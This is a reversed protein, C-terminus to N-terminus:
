SQCVERRTQLRVSYPGRKLLIKDEEWFTRGELKRVVGTPLSKVVNAFGEILQADSTEWFIEPVGRPSIMEHLWSVSSWWRELVPQLSGLLLQVLM